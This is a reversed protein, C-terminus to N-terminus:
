KRYKDEISNTVHHREEDKFGKLLLVHNVSM